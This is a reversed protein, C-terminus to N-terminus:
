RCNRVMSRTDGLSDITAAPKIITPRVAQPAVDPEDEVMEDTGDVVEDAGGVTGDDGPDVTAEVAAPRTM